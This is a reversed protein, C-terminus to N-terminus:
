NTYTPASSSEGNRCNSNETVCVYIYISLIYPGFPWSLYVRLRNFFESQRHLRALSCFGCWLKKKMVFFNYFLCLRILCVVNKQKDEYLFCSSYRKCNMSNSMQIENWKRHYIMWPLFNPFNVDHLHPKHSISPHPSLPCQIRWACIPLNM